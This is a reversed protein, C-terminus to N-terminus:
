RRVRAQAGILHGDATQIEEARDTLVHEWADGEKESLIASQTTRVKRKSSTEHLRRLRM